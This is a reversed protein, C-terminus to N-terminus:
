DSEKEHPAQAKEQLTALDRSLLTKRKRGVSELVLLTICLGLLVLSVILLAIKIERSWQLRIAIAHLFTMM